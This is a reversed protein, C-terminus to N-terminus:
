PRPPTGPPETADLGLDAYLADLVSRIRREHADNAPTGNFALAVALGNEPDAFGTSSRYGSHGFTRSSAHHGYGYPVTEAGYQVSNLIFGLGWDLVHRFTADMMGARHRATIAEATQPTLVRRGRLTGHGLLMEYFRGLERVPGYGNGGPNVSVCREESDWGHSRIEPGETHWAACIRDREKYSLYRERPMGVWSDTMGLPEFIEERVFAPFPRGDVRGVVEGLVFWSSANHYGAKRGPVWRPEPKLACIRAVIEEWSLRPWGVDPMRIGATHTLIHRLTIEEKGNAGFEPLHRAVPDDLELRGREWLQALAVAGVPKTSSLWLMLHDPTLPVGPRDEGVAGDAVPEGHLSAYIQAGLHLGGRIGDEIAQRTRPLRDLGTM